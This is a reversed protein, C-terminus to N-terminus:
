EEPTPPLGTLDFTVRRLLTRRDAVPVPRLGERELRALVFRDIDTRPWSADRVAPVPPPKVPQFSWFRREQPTPPGSRTLSATKDEGPWPAGMAVWRALAAVQEPRLRGSPPMALDGQRRVARLLLSQEPKGAVAAPGSDGGKLLAARSDLRLNGEQKKPGHCRQCSSVLLPRVEKEFFASADPTPQGARLPCPLLGCALVLCVRPLLPSRPAPRRM